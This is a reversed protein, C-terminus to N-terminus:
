EGSFGSTWRGWKRELSKLTQTPSRAPQSYSAMTHKPAQEKQQPCPNAVHSQQLFYPVVKSVQVPTSALTWSPSGNRIFMSVHLHLYSSAIISHRDQFETFARPAPGPPHTQRLLSAATPLDKYQQPKYVSILQRLVGSPNYWLRQRCFWAHQRINQILKM